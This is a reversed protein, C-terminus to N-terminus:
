QLNLKHIKFKRDPDDKSIAPIESREETTLHKSYQEAEYLVELPTKDGTPGGFSDAALADM